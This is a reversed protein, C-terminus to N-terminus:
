QIHHSRPNVYYEVLTQTVKKRNFILTQKANVQIVQPTTIYHKVELKESRNNQLGTKIESPKVLRSPTCFTRLPGQTLLSGHVTQSLLQIGVTSWKV